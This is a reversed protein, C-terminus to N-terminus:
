PCIEENAPENSICSMLGHLVLDHILVSIEATSLDKGKANWHQLLGFMASNAFSAIYDFNPVNNPIPIYPEIFPILESRIKPLFASDGNPGMLLYIKENIAAFIISFLEELSKSEPSAQLITEKIEDLLKQEAYALLDYTDLFYEYFTSRNYGARRTLESVAIKAIPKEKILSWFADIFRQRTKETIEPQKKM